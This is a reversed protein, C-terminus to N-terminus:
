HMKWFIDLKIINLPIAAATPGNDGYHHHVMFVTNAPLDTSLTGSAVAASDRRRVEYYIASGNPESFLYLTYVTNATNAPFSAGLDIKTCTGSADNHMIQMNTDGSDWGLIICNVFTSPETGTTPTTTLNRLGVFQRSSAVSTEVAFTYKYFFGGINSANGRVVSGAYSATRVHAISGASAASTLVNRKMMTRYNTITSDVTSLTGTGVHNVTILNHAAISGNGPIWGGWNWKGWAISPFLIDDYSGVLAATPETILLASNFDDASLYDVTNDANIRVFRVASPNAKTFLEQGVTTGGLNTRATAANALDSLNSAKALKTDAYTKTAKQSAYKTDSDAALTGDTDKNASSEPTFGFNNETVAWNSATQGPSDVLARIADGSTVATGGLTGAVSITWLDGKLVAGATGSGGSSPWVNASANYNGRDDVLGVVLADAYAKSAMGIDSLSTVCNGADELSILLNGNFDKIAGHAWDIIEVGQYLLHGEILDIEIDSTDSAALKGDSKIRLREVAGSGNDALGIVLDATRTADDHTTIEWRIHGMERDDAGAGTTDTRCTISAGTGDTPDANHLVVFNATQINTDLEVRIRGETILGRDVTVNSVDSSIGDVGGTNGRWGSM